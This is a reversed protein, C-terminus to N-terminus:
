GGQSQIAPGLKWYATFMVLILFLLAVIGTVDIVRYDPWGYEKSISRLLAFMVHDGSDSNTMIAVGQHREPFDVLVCRYGANAGAHMFELSNGSGKVQIGLGFQGPEIWSGRTQVTLYQKAMTPTLIKHSRGDYEKEVELALRGLDSPTTWLGAAAMEPFTLPGGKVAEGSTLYATAESSEMDKPLPQQYTSRDMGARRLVLENMLEPFPKGTVDTLLLQMVIFGGGSYRLIRGPETDVRVAPTNAPTEADLVQVVTPLKEDSAYGHFGHVTLGASHTLLRRLTVKQNKTFENEPVKWSKLKANVDEDLSLKGEEVLHLAALASVPKSISAAQFLTEPTVPIKQAVDAYGYGRAWAIHDGEFFAVSVGPVKYYEMQEALKYPTQGKVAIPDFILGSEIRAIRAEVGTDLTPNTSRQGYIVTGVGFLVLLRLVVWLVRSRVM